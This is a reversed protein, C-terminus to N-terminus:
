NTQNAELDYRQRFSPGIVVHNTSKLRKVDSSNCAFACCRRCLLQYLADPLKERLSRAESMDKKWRKQYNQFQTRAMTDLHDDRNKGVLDQFSAVAERMLLESNINQQEKGM